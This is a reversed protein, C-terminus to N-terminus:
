RVSKPDKTSRTNVAGRSVSDFNMPRELNAAAKWNYAVIQTKDQPTLGQALRLFEENDSESYIMLLHNQFTFKGIQFRMVGRHKYAAVPQIFGDETFTMGEEPDGSVSGDPFLIPREMQGSDSFPDSAPAARVTRAASLSPELGGATDPVINVPEPKAINARINEIAADTMLMETPTLGTAQALGEEKAQADEKTITMQGGEPANPNGPSEAQETVPADAPKAAPTSGTAPDVAKEPEDKKGSGSLLGEKAFVVGSLLISRRNQM